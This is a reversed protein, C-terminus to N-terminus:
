LIEKWDKSRLEKLEKKLEAINKEIPSIINFWREIEDLNDSFYNLLLTDAEFNM